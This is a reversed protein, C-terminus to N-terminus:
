IDGGKIIFDDWKICNEEDFDTYSFTDFFPTGNYITIFGRGGSLESPVLVDVYTLNTQNKFEESLLGPWYKKLIILQGRTFKSQDVEWEICEQKEIWTITAFVEPCDITEDYMCPSFVGLAFLIGAVLIVILIAWGYTMLYEMADQGKMNVGM